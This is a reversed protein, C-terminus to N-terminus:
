KKHMYKIFVRMIKIAVKTKVFDYDNFDKYYFINNESNISYNFSDNVEYSKQYYTM